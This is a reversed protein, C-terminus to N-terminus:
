LDGSLDYSMDHLGTSLCVYTVNNTSAININDHRLISTVPVMLDM